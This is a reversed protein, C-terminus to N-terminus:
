PMSRALEKRLWALAHRWDNSVTRRCVGLVEAVEQPSLGGFIRLTVVRVAREDHGALTDLASSLGVLEELDVTQEGPSNVGEALTVQHWGAGRKIAGRRRAHDILLQKMIVAGVAVFHARSKWCARKQEALRLYAEHVLATPQLTHGPRERRIYGSALRRLEDYVLPFLEAASPKRGAAQGGAEVDCLRTDVVSV